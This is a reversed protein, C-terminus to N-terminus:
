EILFAFIELYRFMIYYFMEVSCTYTNFKWKVHHHSVNNVICTIYMNSSRTTIEISM